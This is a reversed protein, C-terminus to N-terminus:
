ETREGFFASKGKIGPMLKKILAASAKRARHVEIVTDPSYKKEAEKISNAIMLALNKVNDAGSAYLLVPIVIGSPTTRILFLGNVEDDTITCSSIATDYWGMTLSSLDDLIGNQGNFVCNKIASRFQTVSLSDLTDIYDPVKKVKNVFDFELADKLTLRVIESEKSEKSFGVKECSGAMEEDEFEYFSKTIDEDKVGEEQYIEHLDAHGEATDSKVFLIRSVTDQDDDDLGKVEYILAGNINGADDRTGYGRFFDRNMDDIIDEGLIETFEELNDESIEFAGM